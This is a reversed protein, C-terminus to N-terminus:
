SVLGGPNIEIEIMAPDTSTSDHQPGQVRQLIGTFTQAVGFAHKNADLPQLNVTVKSLGAKNRLDRLLTDDRGVAFNRAVTINAVSVSGGLSVEAGMGGPRYKVEDSDTDGGTCRDFPDSVPVDDVALTCLFRDNRLRDAV